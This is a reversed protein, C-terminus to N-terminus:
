GYDTFNNQMFLMHEGEQQFVGNHTHLQLLLHVHVVNKPSIIIIVVDLVFELLHLSHCVAWRQFQSYVLWNRRSWM